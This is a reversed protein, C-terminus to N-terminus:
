LVKKSNIVLINEILHLNKPHHAENRFGIINLIENSNNIPQWLSITNMKLSDYCAIMDYRSLTVTDKCYM